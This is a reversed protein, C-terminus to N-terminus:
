LLVKHEGQHYDVTLGRKNHERRVSDLLVRFHDPGELGTFLLAIVALQFAGKVVHADCVIRVRGKPGYAILPGRWDCGMQSTFYPSAM